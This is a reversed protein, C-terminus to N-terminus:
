GSFCANRIVNGVAEAFFRKFDKGNASVDYSCSLFMEPLVCGDFRAVIEEYNASLEADKLYFPITLSVEAEEPLFDMRYKKRFRRLDVRGEVRFLLMTERRYFTIREMRAQAPADEDALSVILYFLSALEDVNLPSSLSVLPSETLMSLVEERSEFGLDQVMEGESSEETFVRRYIGEEPLNILPRELYEIEETIMVEEKEECDYLPNSSGDMRLDSSVLWKERGFSGFLFFSLVVIVVSLVWVKM